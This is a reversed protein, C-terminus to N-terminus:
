VRNPCLDPEHRRLDRLFEKSHVNEHGYKKVLRYYEREPICAVAKGLVPHTKGRMQHAEQAAARERAGITAKEQALSEHIHEQRAHQVAQDSLQNKKHIINLM